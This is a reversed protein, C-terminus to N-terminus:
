AAKKEEAESYIGLSALSNMRARHYLLRQAAAVNAANGRWAKLAPQQLARSFSFTLPWPLSEKLANMANLHATAVEESQGGSLFVIGPLAAPATRKLCRITQRAVEEVGAQRPCQAGSLVMSTKLITHELVVRQDYLANFVEKLTAETVEFCREITHDGDILVEPEIM